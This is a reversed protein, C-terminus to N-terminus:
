SVLETLDHAEKEIYDCLSNVNSEDSIDLPIVREDSKSLFNIIQSTELNLEIDQTTQYMLYLKMDDKYNDILLKTKAFWDTNRSEGSHKLSAIQMYNWIGNKFGFDIPVRIVEDLGSIPKITFDRRIKKMLHKEEFITRLYKKVNVDRQIVNLFKSGIYTVFLSDFLHDVNDTKAYTPESLFMNEGSLAKYLSYLYEHEYVSTQSNNAEVFLNNTTSEFLFEIYEKSVKYADLDVKSNSIGKIKVNNDDLLRHRLIHTDSSSHLVLGVNLLEGATPDNCYRIVSYWCEKREM